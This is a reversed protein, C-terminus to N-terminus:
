RHQPHKVRQHFVVEFPQQSIVADLVNADYRIPNPADSIKRCVPCGSSAVSAQNGPHIVGEVVGREFPQQEEARARHDLGRM